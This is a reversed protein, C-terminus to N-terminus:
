VAEALFDHQNTFRVDFASPNDRIDVDGKM